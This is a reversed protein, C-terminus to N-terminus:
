SQLSNLFMSQLDLSKGIDGIVIFLSDFGTKVIAKSAVIANM